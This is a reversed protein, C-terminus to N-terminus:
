QLRNWYSESMPHAKALRRGATMAHEGGIQRISYLIRNQVFLPKGRRHNRKNMYAKKLLDIAIKNKSNEYRNGMRVATESRVVVADDFLGAKLIDGCFRAKSFTCTRVWGIRWGWSWSGLKAGKASFYKWMKFRKKESQKMFRKWDKPTPEKTIDIPESSKHSANNALAVDNSYFCPLILGVTLFLAHVVNKSKGIVSM